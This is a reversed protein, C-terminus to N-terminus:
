LRQLGLGAIRVTLNSLVVRSDCLRKVPGASCSRGALEKSVNKNSSSFDGLREQNFGEASFETNVPM